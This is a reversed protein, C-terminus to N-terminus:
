GATARHPDLLEALHQAPWGALQSAQTRCSFGDALLLTGEPAARLAPCCRTSLSRWRCRTTGGSWASTARSGAAAPCPRSRPARRACCPWTPTTAWSRTSTVTRSPSSGSAPSGGTCGPCTGPRRRPWAADRGPDQDRRGRGPGASRGPTRHPRRPVGGHLLARARRDDHGARRVRGPRRRRGAAPGASRGLQGTSIWTLGCCWSRGPVVVEFGAEALVAVAAEAVQPSFARTFTDAWLVVRACPPGGRRVRPPLLGPEGAAAGRGPPAAPGPTAPRPALAPLPRRPDIGALWRVVRAVPRGCRPAPWAPRSRPWGPGARCGASCTTAARAYGAGTPRTCSTPSTPRWTWRSRATM